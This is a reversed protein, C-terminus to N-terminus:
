GAINKGALAMGPWAAKKAIYIGTGYFVVLPVLIYHGVMKLGNGM